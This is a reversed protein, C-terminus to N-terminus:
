FLERFRLGNVRFGGGFFAWRRKADKQIKDLLDYMPWEGEVRPVSLHQSFSSSSVGDDDDDDDDDDFLGGDGLGDAVGGGGDYRGSGGGRMMKEAVVEPMGSQTDGIQFPYVRGSKVKGHAHRENAGVRFTDLGQFSEGGGRLANIGHQEGDGEREFGREGGKGGFGEVWVQGRQEGEEGWDGELSAGIRQDGREKRKIFNGVTGVDGKEAEIEKRRDDGGAEDGDFGQRYQEGRVAEDGGATMGKWAERVCKVLTVCVCPVERGYWQASEIQWTSEERCSVLMLVYANEHCLGVM